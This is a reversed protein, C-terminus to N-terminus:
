SIHFIWDDQRECKGFGRVDKDTCEVGNPGVWFSRFGHQGIVRFAFMLHGSSNFDGSFSRQGGDPDKSAMDDIRVQLGIRELNRAGHGSDEKIVKVHAAISAANEWHVSTFRDDTGERSDAFRVDLIITHLSPSLWKDLAGDPRSNSATCLTLTHLQPFEWSSFANYEPKYGLWGLKLVCLSHRQPMLVDGLKDHDWRYAPDPDTEDGGYNGYAVHNINFTQLNRPWEMLRKIAETKARLNSISIETSNATGCEEPSPGLDVDDRDLNMMDLGLRELNPLM